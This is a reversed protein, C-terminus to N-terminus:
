AGELNLAQAARAYLDEESSNNELTFDIFGRYLGHCSPHKTPEAGPRLIEAVIITSGPVKRAMDFLFAAEVNERLDPIVLDGEPRIRLKEAWYHDGYTRRRYDTGWIQLVVRSSLFDDTYYGLESCLEIFGKDLCNRPQLAEQTSTKWERSRLQEETVNYAKAIEEYLPDAFARRFFGHHDVLSQALVDKGTQPAGTLAVIRLPKM